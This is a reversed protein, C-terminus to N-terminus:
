NKLFKVYQIKENTKMELLYIGKKLKDTELLISNNGKTLMAKQRILIRGAEDLINLELMENDLNNYISMTAIGDVPNPYINAVDAKDNSRVTKVNSYSSSGNFDVQKLRYYLIDTNQTKFASADTFTYDIISNSNGHGKVYGMAQWFNGEQSREVEFGANNIESATSWDLIVDAGKANANFKILKVPLPSAGSGIGFYYTTGGVLSIPDSSIQSSNAVTGPSLTAYSNNIRTWDGTLSTRYAMYSTTTNFGTLQTNVDVNDWQLTVTVNNLTGAGAEPIITWTKGIVNSNVPANTQDTVGNTVGVSFNTASAGGELTITVPLYPNYGIPYFVGSSTAQRKLKGTGSIRVYSNANGGSTVASNGLVLDHDDLKIFGKSLNLTGNVTLDANITKVDGKSLALNNVNLAFAPLSQSSSGNINFISGNWAYSLGTGTADCTFDGAIGIIGAGAFTITSSSARAGTIKLHAYNAPTITQSGSGKYSVLSSSGFTFDSTTDYGQFAATSADNLGHVDQVEVTGNITVSAPTSTAKKFNNLNPIILYTSAGVNLAGSMTIDFDTGDMTVGGASSNSITINRAKTKGLTNFGAKSMTSSGYLEYNASDALTKTGGVAINDGIGNTASSKLTGNLTFQSTNNNSGSTSELISYTGADLTGNVTMIRNITSKSYLPLNSNLQLTSGANVDISVNDLSNTSNNSFTQTGAKGFIIKGSSTTKTCTITGGTKTFNGAVNLISTFSGSFPTGTGFDLTGADMKFDNVYITPVGSNTSFQVNGTTTNKIYLTGNIYISGTKNLDTTFQVLSSGTQGTQDITLNNLKAVIYTSSTSKNRINGNTFTVKNAGETTMVVTGTLNYNSSSTGDMELDDGVTIINGGDAFVSSGTYVTSLSGEIDLNANSALTLGGASKTSNLSYMSVTTASSGGSITQAGNGSTLLNVNDRWTSTFTTNVVSLNGSIPVNIPFNGDQTNTPADVTVGNFKLNSFPLTPLTITAGANDYYVTSGSKIEHLTPLTSSKIDM